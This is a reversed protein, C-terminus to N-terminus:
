VSRCSLCRTGTLDKVTIQNLDTRRAIKGGGGDGSDDPNTKPDHLITANANHNYSNANCYQMVQIWFFDKTEYFKGMHHFAHAKATPDTITVNIEGNKAYVRNSNGRLGLITTVVFEM